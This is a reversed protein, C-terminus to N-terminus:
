KNVPLNLNKNGWESWSGDYVPAVIGNVHYLALSIMCATVGSGCTTIVLPHQDLNFDDWIHRLDDKHRLKGTEPQVLDTCPLSRSGPIHGSALGPRPEPVDGRFRGSPRADLILASDQALANMVHERSVVWQPQFQAEYASKEPTRPPESLTPLGAREWAPLGGNLVCVRDHGFAKFMWWARAPGMVIGNQGYIVVLDKNSIGLNSIDISFKDANPLMHPLDSHPDAIKEIDFFVANGIRKRAFSQHPEHGSNPMVFTADVLKLHRASEPNELLDMLEEPELIARRSLSQFDPM